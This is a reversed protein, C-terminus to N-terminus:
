KRNNINLYINELKKANDKIDYGAKKIQLKVKNKITSREYIPINAIKDAWLKPEDEISLFEVLDTIKVDHTVKNSVVCPLGATQGEVLVLPFGEFLSPLILVDMAQLWEEVNNSNGVFSINNYIGKKKSKEIINKLNKGEGILVLHYRDKYKKEIEGFIDIIYDHNKQLNFTGIHGIVIKENLHNVRRMENRAKEDYSYKEIDIGNNIITFKKNNFLWEGAKQGCALRETYLLNFIPKLLKHLFMHNSKTNHSHVIRNKCRGLISAILEIVLLSSSGHIHVIEYKNDKIIKSVKKIYRFFKKRDKIIFIKSKKNIENEIESTISPALFDYQIKNLDLNNLNNLLFTTIGDFRLESTVINLVKKM